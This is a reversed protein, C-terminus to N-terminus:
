SVCTLMICQGSGLNVIASVEHLFGPTMLDKILHRNRKFKNDTSKMSIHMDPILGLFVDGLFDSRDFEKTRRLLIDQSEKFDTIIVWPKMLPRTFVQVIPSNLKTNQATTWPFIQGTASLQKLMAPLDGLISNASDLNYPVGPIPKPLAWRYGLYLLVSSCGLLLPAIAFDLSYVYEMDSFPTLLRKSSLSLNFTPSHSCVIFPPLSM